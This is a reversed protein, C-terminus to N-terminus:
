VFWKMDLMVFERIWSAALVLCAVCALRFEWTHRREVVASRHVVAAAAYVLLIPMLPLHYRSHAFAVAHIACPFAIWLLLAAHAVRGAPPVVLVGLL